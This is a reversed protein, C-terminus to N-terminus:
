QGLISKDLGGLQWIENSHSLGYQVLVPDGSTVSEFEDLTLTFVLTNLDGNRYSSLFFHRDGIELVLLEDRVPFADWSFVQIEIGPEGSLVDSSDVSRISVITGPHVIVDGTNFFADGFRGALDTYGIVGPAGFGFTINLVPSNPPLTVQFSATIDQIVADHFIVQGGQFIDDRTFRVGLLTFDFSVLQVYSEGVPSM